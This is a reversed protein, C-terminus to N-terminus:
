SYGNETQISNKLTIQYDTNNDNILRVIFTEGRLRELQKKGFFSVAQPNIQREIRNKDWLFIPINNDQNKVRNYFYNINHKGEEATYLIDQTNNNNTKPYKSKQSLTKQEFLNLLGSNNTHNYINLKNFGISRKEAFDWEDQWRRAELNLSLSLLEKRINENQIPYEIIFAEQKGYFKQFSKNNLYHNWLTGLNESSTFYDQHAVTFNPKFSYYSVWGITPNFAITWSVDEFLTSDTPQVEQGDYIIKNDETTFLNLDIGEKVVIDKKTFFIRDFRADYWINFGIGKFKNDTDIQPLQKLIKFPLHERFWNKMSSPNNGVSDSIAELGGGSPDVKWIKGRKADVYFHGYPTNALDTNQTGAFGLDSISFEAPRTTFIGGTGIVSTQPTIRDALNDIRNFVVAQDTFLGLIQQGQINQIRQLEGYKTPFEHRNLPKYVLWPDLFVNNESNDVESYVVANDQVSRKFYDEKNYDFALKRFPTNSVPLSYVNNYFFTNPEKIPVNKQQTWEM